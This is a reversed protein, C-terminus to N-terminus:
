FYRCESPFQIALSLYQLFHLAPLILVPQNASSPVFYLNLGFCAVLCIKLILVLLSNGVFNLNFITKSKKLFITCLWVHRRSTTFILLSCFIWSRNMRLKRRRAQARVRSQQCQMLIGPALAVGGGAVVWWRRTAVSWDKWGASYFLCQTNVSFHM